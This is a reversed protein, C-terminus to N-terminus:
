AHGRVQHGRKEAAEKHLNLVHLEARWGARYALWEPEGAGPEIRGFDARFPEHAVTLLDKGGRIWATKAHNRGLSELRDLERISQAM